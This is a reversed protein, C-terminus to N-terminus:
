PTRTFLLATNNGGFAFNTSMMLGPQIARPEVLADISPLAPDLKARECQAPLTVPRNAGLMLILLGADTVGAAGLTHGTLNKTSSMPTKDEFLSFLAATEAADNAPTATGHLNVYVVDEPNAGARRLADTVCTKAGVGEPDPSSMHYGDSSEGYGVFAVENTERKLLVLGVAEGITIGHRSAQLPECVTPSLVGLSEFGNIPMSALTDCGGVLVADALGAKLLREGTIFARASSTCATCITFNPGKAGLLRAVFRAPDGMEQQRSSFHTAEDNLTAKIYHAVEESGSTSTGLVVAIRQPAIGELAAELSVRRNEVATLLLQNNRSAEVSTAWDPWHTSLEGPITGLVPASGDIRYGECAKLGPATGKELNALISENTTGLSNMLSVWHVYSTM